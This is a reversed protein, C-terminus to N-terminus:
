VETWNRTTIGDTSLRRLRFGQRSRGFVRWWLMFRAGAVHRATAANQTM